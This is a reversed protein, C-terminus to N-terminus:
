FFCLCVCVHIVDAQVECFWFLFILVQRSVRRLLLLHTDGRPIQQDPTHGHRGYCLLPAKNRRRLQLAGTGATTAAPVMAANRQRKHVRVQVRNEM